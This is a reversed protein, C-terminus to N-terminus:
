ADSIELNKISNMHARTPEWPGARGWAKAPGLTGVPGPPDQAGVLGQTRPELCNNRYLFHM